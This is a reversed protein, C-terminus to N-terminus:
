GKYYNSLKEIFYEIEKVKGISVRCWNQYLPYSHSVLIKQQRMLSYFERSDLNTNFMVFNTSSSIYELGINDFHHQVLSMSNRVANLSDEQFENDNLSAIASRLGLINVFSMQYPKLKRIIDSRAIGYGIRLGALGHLKSFTKSIIINKEEKVKDVMSNKDSEDLFNIYAEDVLITSKGEVVDIFSRLKDSDLLTATPNNPNCIYVLGTKSGVNDEIVELNYRKDKDLNVEILQAGINKAYEGLLSFTPRGTIVQNHLGYALSCMRLLELSGSTIIINDPKVNELQALLNRLRDSEGESYMWVLEKSNSLVKKVSEAPGYPNENAFLRVPFKIEQNKEKENSNLNPNLAAFGGVGYSSFSRRTIKNYSHLKM